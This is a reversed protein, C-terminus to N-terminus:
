QVAATKNKLGLVRPSLKEGDMRFLVKQIYEYYYRLEKPYALNLAYIVGLMMACARAISGINDLIVVGEVFIGIDDYHGAEEGEKNIVFIGMSHTQI